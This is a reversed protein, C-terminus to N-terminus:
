MKLLQWLYFLLYLKWEIKIIEDDYITDTGKDDMTLIYRGYLQVNEEEVTWINGTTDELYAVNGKIDTVVASRYYENTTDSEVASKLLVSMGLLFLLLMAVFLVQLTDEAIRRRIEKM